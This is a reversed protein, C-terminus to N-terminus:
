QILLNTFERLNNIPLEQGGKNDIMFIADRETDYFVKYEVADVVFEFYFEKDFPQYKFPTVIKVGKLKKAAKFYLELHKSHEAASENLNSVFESYNPLKGM